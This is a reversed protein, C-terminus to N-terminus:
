AQSSRTTFHHTRNSLEDFRRVATRWIIVVATLLGLAFILPSSMQRWTEYRKPPEWLTSTLWAFPSFNVAADITEGWMRGAIWSAISMAMFHVLLCYMLVNAGNRLSWTRISLIAALALGFVWLWEFPPPPVFPLLVAVSTILVFATTGLIRSGFRQDVLSIMAGVVVVELTWALGILTGGLIGSPRSLFWLVALAIPGALIRVLAPQVIWLMGNVIQRADLPTALLDDFFGPRRSLLPNTSAAVVIFPQVVIWLPLLLMSISGRDEFRLIWCVPIGFLLYFLWVARFQKKTTQYDDLQLQLPAWMSSRPPRQAGASVRPPRLSTVARGEPTELASTAITLCVWFSGTALSAAFTLAILVVWLEEKTRASIFTGGAIGVIWFLFSGIFFGIITARLPGKSTTAAVLSGATLCLSELVLLCVSRVIGVISVGGFLAMISVVPALSAVVAISVFMSAGAMGLLIERPSVQTTLLLDINGEKRERIITPCIWLPLAFTLVIGTVLFSLQTFRAATAARNELTQERPGVENGENLLLLLVFIPAAVFTLRLVPGRALRLLERALLPGLLRSLLRM